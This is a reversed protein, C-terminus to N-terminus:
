LPTEPEYERVLMRWAEFGNSKPVLRLLTLARGGLVQIFLSYLFKSKRRVEPKMVNEDIPVPQAEALEM